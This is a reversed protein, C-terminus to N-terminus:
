QDEEFADQAMAPWAEDGVISTVVQTVTEDADLEDAKVQLVGLVQRGYWVYLERDGDKAAWVPMGDFDLQSQTGALIQARIDSRDGADRTDARTPDLTVLEITGVLRDAKRLEWV